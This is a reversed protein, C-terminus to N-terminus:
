LGRVPKGKDIKVLTKSVMDMLSDEYDVVLPMKNKKNYSSWAAFQKAFDAMNDTLDICGHSGELSGGHIYFSGRGYTETGAKPIIALRHNGWGIRSRLSDIHFDQNEDTLKGSIQYWFAEWPGVEPLGGDRTQLPGVIYNGSPIPGADKEKMWEEQSQVFSKLYSGISNSSLANKITLGSEADWSKVVNGSSLWFLRDGDFRLSSNKDLIGSDIESDSSNKSISVKCSGKKNYDELAKDTLPGFYGTPKGTKTKLCGLDILKQQLTSVDKKLNLRDGKGDGIKLNKPNIDIKSEYLGLINRKEEETIILKRM